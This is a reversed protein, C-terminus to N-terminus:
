MGNLCGSPCRALCKGGVDGHELYSQHPCTHQPLPSSKGGFPRVTPLLHTQTWADMGRLWKVGDGPRQWASTTQCTFLSPLLLVLLARDGRRGGAGGRSQNSTFPLFIPTRPPGTTRACHATALSPPSPAPQCQGCPSEAMPRLRSPGKRLGPSGAARGGGGHVGLRVPRPPRPGAADERSQPPVQGRGGGAATHQPAAPVGSPTASFAAVNGPPSPQCPRHAAAHRTTGGPLAPASRHPTAGWAGHQGTRVALEGGANASVDKAQQGPSGRRAWAGGLSLHAGAWLVLGSRFTRLRVGAACRGLRPCLAMLLGM